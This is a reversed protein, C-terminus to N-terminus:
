LIRFFPLHSQSVMWVFFEHCVNHFPQPMPEPYAKILWACICGLWLCGERLQQEDLQPVPTNACPTHPLIPLLDVAEPFCELNAPSDM